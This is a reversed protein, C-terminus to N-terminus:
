ATPVSCSCPRSPASVRNSDVPSGARCSPTRTARRRRAPSNSAAVGCSGAGASIPIPTPAPHPLDHLRTLHLLARLLPSLPSLSVTNRPPVSARLCNPVDFVRQPWPGGRPSRRQRGATPRGSPDPFGALVLAPDGDHPVQERLKGRDTAACRAAGSAIWTSRNAAAALRSRVM